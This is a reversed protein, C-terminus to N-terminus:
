PKEEADIPATTQAVPQSRPVELPAYAEDFDDDEALADLWAEEFDPHGALASSIEAESAEGSGTLSLLANVADVVADDIVSAVHSRVRRERTPNTVRISHAIAIVGFGDPSPEVERMTASMHASTEAEDAFIERCDSCRGYPVDSEPDFRGRTPTTQQTM